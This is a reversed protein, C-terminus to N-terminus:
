HKSHRFYIARLQELNEATIQDKGNMIADLHEMTTDNYFDHLGLTHGFEHLMVPPLYLFYKTPNSTGPVKTGHVGEITTWAWTTYKWPQRDPKEASQPPDEFVMYMDEMHVGPGSGSSQTATKGKVCAYSMGCGKTPDTADISSTSNTDISATTIEVTGNDTCGACIRIDKGLGRMKSNWESAADALAFKNIARASISGEVYRVNHDAQHGWWHKPYLGVYTPTTSTPGSGSDNVGKVSFTYFTNPVLGLINVPDNGPRVEVWPSNPIERITDSGNTEFTVHDTDPTARVMTARVMHYDAGSAHDWEFTIGKFGLMYTVKLAGSMGPREDVVTTTVVNSSGSIGQVSEALIRHSYSEGPMLDSVVVELRGGDEVISDITIGDNDNPDDTLRKWSSGFLQEVHYEADLDNGVDPNPVPNWTLTIQGYEGNKYEGILNQPPPRINVEFPDSLSSRHNNVAKVRFSYSQQDDPDLGRVVATTEEFDISVDSSSLETYSGDKLQLVRYGNTSDTSHWDLVIWGRQSGPVGTHITPKSPVTPPPPLRGVTFTVSDSVWVTGDWVTLILQYELASRQAAPATWTPTLALRSTFRGQGSWSYTLTDDDSDSASAVLSVIQGGSVTGGRTNIAVTPPGNAPPNGSWPTPTYTPTPSATHTATPTHTPTHTPTNTPTPTPTYTPTPPQNNPPGGTRPTPTYTPTPTDTPTPTPTYTPTPTNTPTPTPTSTPTATPPCRDPYDHCICPIGDIVCGQESDEETAIVVSEEAIVHATDSAVLRVHAEGASCARLTVSMPAVASETTTATSTATSTTTTAISATSTATGTDCGEGEPVLHDSWEVRVQLDPPLVESVSVATTEGVGLFEPDVTLDGTPIPVPDQASTRAPIVTLFLAALFVAALLIHLFLRNRM